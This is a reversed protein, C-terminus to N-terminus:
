VKKKAKTTTRSEYFVRELKVFIAFFLYVHIPMLAQILKLEVGSNFALLVVVLSFIATNENTKPSRVTM